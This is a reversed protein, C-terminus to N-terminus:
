VGTKEPDLIKFAQEQYTKANAAIADVSLPKRTVNKCTSDGIMATSDGLLVQVEHGLQQFQRLKNLVVTHGFHIDAATPDLGLKVRLKQAGQLRAKLEDEVLVESTGRKIEEFSM